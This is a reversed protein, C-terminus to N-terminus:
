PKSGRWGRALLAVGGIAFAVGLTAFPASFKLVCEPKDATIPGGLDVLTTSVVVMVAGTAVLPVGVSRHLVISV